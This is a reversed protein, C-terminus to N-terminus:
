EDIISRVNNKLAPTPRFVATLKPPILTRKKTTPNYAIRENKKTIDFTGLGSLSISEGKALREGIITTLQALWRTADSQKMGTSKSIAAALEKNNM